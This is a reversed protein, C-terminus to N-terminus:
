RTTGRYTHTQVPQLGDIDTWTIRETRYFSNVPIVAQWVVDGSRNVETIRGDRDRNGTGGAGILVNGNPLEDVDGLSSTFKGALAEFVQTATGAEADIQYIVARSQDTEGNSENRNDYVLLDGSATFMPAHQGTTWSGATLTLFPADFGPSTGADDGAIWNIEGSARDINVVWGQSRSSLLIEGAAEDIWVANAHTWDLGGGRAETTALEGPFRGTDLHDFTSWEWVINGDADVETVVDGLLNQGGARREERTLLLVGGDELLRVDHHWGDIGSLDIESIITGDLTIRQINRNFLVLAEGDGLHRVYPDGAIRQDSDLYWVVYGESDFGFYAPGAGDDLDRLGVFTIGNTETNAAAQTIEIDPATVPLAGSTFEVAEAEVDGSVATFSYTTEARLGVISITRDSESADIVRTEIGDSEVRVSLPNERDTEVTLEAILSNTAHPSVAVSITTDIEPAEVIPTAPRGAGSPIGITPRIPGADCAALLAAGVILFAIRAKTRSMFPRPAYTTM